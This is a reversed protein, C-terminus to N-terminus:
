EVPILDLTKDDVGTIQMLAAAIAELQVLDVGALPIRADQEISVLPNPIRRKACLVDLAAGIRTMANVGRKRAIKPHM